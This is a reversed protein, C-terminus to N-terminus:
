AQMLHRKYYNEIGLTVSFYIKVLFLKKLYQMDEMFAYPLPLFV